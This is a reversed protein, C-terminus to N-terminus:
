GAAPVQRGRWMAPRGKALLWASRCFLAVFAALPAPFAASTWGQWTGVRDFLWRMEVVWAGYVAAHLCAAGLRLHWVARIAALGHGAGLLAGTVWCAVAAAMGPRTLRAGNALMKTWGAVLQSLGDPYMRFAVDSGGALVTVQRGLRRMRRALAVDEAVQLRVSPHAHGGIAEYDARSLLLLPGFAMDPSASPTATFAGTGMMVVVNCVASLQEHLSCTHHSPQVSVLGPRRRYEELLLGVAGPALTVDADVFALLEGGAARAGQWAAWTKGVWGCPLPPASVVSAGAARALAATDDTSHDDVVIVEGAPPHQAALSDLLAPLRRAEDRAPIVVSLRTPSLPPEEPVPWPPASSRGSGARSPTPVRWLLWAGAALGLVAQLLRLTRLPSWRAM